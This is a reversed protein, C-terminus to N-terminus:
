CLGCWCKSSVFVGTMLIRITFMSRKSLRRTTRAAILVSGM